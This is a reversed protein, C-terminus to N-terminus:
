RREGASHRRIFTEFFERYPSTDSPALDGHAKGYQLTNELSWGNDIALHLLTLMGARGGSKCHVLVPAAGDSKVAQMYREVTADDITDPSIPIAAYNLGTHEVLREENENAGPEDAPRLNVITRFGADQAGQIDAESPQGAIAIEPTIQRLNM